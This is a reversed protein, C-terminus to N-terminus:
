YEENNEELLTDINLDSNWEPDIISCYTSVEAELAQLNDSNLELYKPNPNEKLINRQIRINCSHILEWLSKFDRQEVFKNGLIKDHEPLNPILQKIREVQTMNNIIQIAQNLQSIRQVEFFVYKYSSIKSLHELYLLFMKKKLPYRDNAYGKADFYFKCNDQEILFDYTYTIPLLPRTSQTLQAKIKKNPQYSLINDCKGGEWLIVKEPEYLVNFGAELLKKYCSYEM